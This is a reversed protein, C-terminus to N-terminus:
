TSVRGEASPYSTREIVTTPLILISAPRGVRRNVSVLGSTQLEALGRGASFRSLGFEAWDDLALEFDASRRWGALLWCVSAVQLSRGPLRQQQLRKKKHAPSGHTM